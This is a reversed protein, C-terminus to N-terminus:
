TASQQKLRVVVIVVLNAPLLRREIASYGGLNDQQPLLLLALGVFL